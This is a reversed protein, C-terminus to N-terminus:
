HTNLPGDVEDLSRGRLASESTRPERGLIDLRQLLVLDLGEEVAGVAFGCAGEALCVLGRQVGALPVLGLCLEAALLLLSLGLSLLIDVLELLLFVLTLLGCGLALPLASGRCWLLLGLLGFDGLLHTLQANYSRSSVGLGLVLRFGLRVLGLGLSGVLRRRGLVGLRLTGRSRAPFLLSGVWFGDLDLVPPM